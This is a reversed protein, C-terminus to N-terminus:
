LANLDMIDGPLVDGEADDPDLDRETEDRFDDAAEDGVSTNFARFVTGGCKACQMGSPPPETDFFYDKGCQECVLTLLEAVPERGAPVGPQAPNIRPQDEAARAGTLTTDDSRNVDHLHSEPM